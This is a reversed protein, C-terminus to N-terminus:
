FKTPRLKPSSNRELRDPLPPFIEAPEPAPPPSNGGAMSLHLINVAANHGGDMVNGCPVCRFASENWGNSAKSGCSSCTIFPTKPDVEVLQRGAWSAKYALQRLILGQISGTENTIGQSPSTSTTCNDEAVEFFTSPQKTADQIGVGIHGFEGVLRSTMRHCENRNAIQRRRYANGLIRSQKVWERSGKKYRALRQHKRIIDPWHRDSTRFATGDSLTARQGGELSVGVCTSSPPLAENEVAYVLNVTVRRGSRTIKLGKLQKSPPLKRVPRIDIPPLGKVRVQGNRVM